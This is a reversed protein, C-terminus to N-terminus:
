SAFEGALLELVWSVFRIRERVALEDAPDIARLQAALELFMLKHESKLEM